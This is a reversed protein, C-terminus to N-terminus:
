RVLFKVEELERAKFKNRENITESMDRARAQRKWLNVGLNLCGKKNQNLCLLALLALSFKIRLRFM